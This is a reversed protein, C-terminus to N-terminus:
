RVASLACYLSSGDTQPSCGDGDTATIELVLGGGVGATEQVLVAEGGITATELVVLQVVPVSAQLLQGMAGGGVNVGAGM